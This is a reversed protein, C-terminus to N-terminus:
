PKVELAFLKHLILRGEKLEPWVVGYRTRYARGSIKEERILRCTEGTEIVLMRQEDGCYLKEGVALAWTLSNLGSEAPITLMRKFETETLRYLVLQEEDPLEGPELLLCYNGVGAIRGGTLVTQRTLIREPQEYSTRYELKEVLGAHMEQGPLEKDARYLIYVNDSDGGASEMRRGLSQGDSLLLWRCSRLPDLKLTLLNLRMLEERILQYAQHAAPEAYRTRYIWENNLTVYGQPLEKVQEALELTKLATGDFRYLSLKGEANLTLAFFLDQAAFFATQVDEPFTACSILEQAAFNYFLIERDRWLYLGQATVAKLQELSFDEGLVDEYYIIQDQSAEDQGTDAKLRLGQRPASGFTFLVTLSLLLVIARRGM